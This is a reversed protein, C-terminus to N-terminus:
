GPATEDLASAVLDIHSNLDLNIFMFYLKFNREETARAVNSIGTALPSM